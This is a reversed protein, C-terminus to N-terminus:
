NNLNRISLISLAAVIIQSKLIALPIIAVKGIYKDIDRYKSNDSRSEKDKTLKEVLQKEKLDLALSNSAM